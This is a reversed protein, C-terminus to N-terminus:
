SARVRRSLVAGDRLVRRTTRRGSAGERLQKPTVGFVRVLHRSVTRPDVGLDEAVDDLPRDPNEMIARKARRAIAQGVLQRYTYGVHERLLHQLYHRGIGVVRAAEGVDKPLDSEGELWRLLSMVAPHEGRISVDEEVNAGLAFPARVLKSPWAKRNRASTVAVHQLRPLETAETPCGLIRCRWCTRDPVVQGHLGKDIPM